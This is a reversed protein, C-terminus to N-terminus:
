NTTEQLPIKLEDLEIVEYESKENNIVKLVLTTPYKISARSWGSSYSVGDARYIEKQIKGKPPIATSPVPKGADIYKQGSFFLSSGGVSSSNWDVEVVDNTLNEISVNIGRYNDSVQVDVFKSDKTVKTTYETKYKPTTSTCGTLILFSFCSLGLLIKKM